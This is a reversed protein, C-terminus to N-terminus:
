LSQRYKILIEKALSDALKKATLEREAGKGSPVLRPQMSGMVAAFNKKDLKGYEDCAARILEFPTRDGLGAHKRGVTLVVAIERMAASTSGPMAKVPLNLSLVGDHVVYFLEVTDAPLDLAAAINDHVSGTAVARGQRPGRPKEYAAPEVGLGSEAALTALVFKFAEVTLPEETIGARKVIAYATKVCAELEDAREQLDM